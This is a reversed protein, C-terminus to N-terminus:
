VSAGVLVHLYFIANEKVWICHCKDAAPTVVFPEAKAPDRFGNLVTTNVTNQNTIVTADFKSNIIMQGGQVLRQQIAAKLSAREGDRAINYPEDGGVDGERIWAKARADGVLYFAAIPAAGRGRIKDGTLRLTKDGVQLAWRDKANDVREKFDKAVVGDKTAFAENIKDNWRDFAGELNTTHSNRIDAASRDSKAKFGSDIMPGYELSAREAMVKIFTGDDPIKEQRRDNMIQAQNKLNTAWREVMDAAVESHPPVLLKLEFKKTFPMNIVELRGKLLRILRISGILGNKSM